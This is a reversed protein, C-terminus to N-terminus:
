RRYAATRVVKQLTPLDYAGQYRHGNVFFTPTGTVGSLDASEVDEAIRPKGKHKHMFETFRDMDLELQQAYRKIDTLTLHDQHSLMLDHMEWFKGQAGAAESAEAALQARPHVDNLPLHRWVYRLERGGFESLLPRIAQEARGCFPCELDGYEVITVPADEPGRIHDRDPDVPVALDVIVPASGIIARKRISPPLLRTAQECLWTV